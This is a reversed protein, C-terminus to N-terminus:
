RLTVGLTVRIEDGITNTFTRRWGAGTRIGLAPTSWVTLGGGVELAPDSRTASGLDQHVLGFLTRLYPEFDQRSPIAWRPGVMIAHTQLVHQFSESATTSSTLAQTLTAADQNLDLTTLSTSKSLADAMWESLWLSTDLDLGSVIQSQTSTHSDTDLTTTTTTTLIQGQLTRYNGSGEVTLGVQPGIDLGAFWGHGTEAYSWGGYGSLQAQATGVGLTALLVVLLLKRM